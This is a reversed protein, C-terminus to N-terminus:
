QKEELGMRELDSRYARFRGEIAEITDIRVLADMFERQSIRELHLLHIGVAKVKGTIQTGSSLYLTLQKGQHAKLNDILAHDVNFAMGEVEVVPNGKAASGALPVLLGFVLLSAFIARTWNCTHATDATNM